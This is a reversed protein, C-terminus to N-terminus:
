ALSAILLAVLTLRLAPFMARGAVAARRGTPFERAAWAFVGRGLSVAVLVASASGPRDWFGVTCTGAFASVGRAIAGATAVATGEHGNSPAQDLIGQDVRRNAAPAPAAAIPTRSFAPIVSE